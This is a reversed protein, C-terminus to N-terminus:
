GAISSLRRWLRLSRPPFNTILLPSYPHATPPLQIVQLIIGGTSNHWTMFENTVRIVTLEEDSAM